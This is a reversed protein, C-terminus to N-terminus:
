VSNHCFSSLLPPIFTFVGIANDYTLAGTGAPAALSVSLSSLSIGTGGAGTLDSAAIWKSQSASYKLVQGETAGTVNVDTLSSLSKVSSIIGNSITISTGDVIVGGKQSTSATAIGITGSTNTIGSTGVAPIIM